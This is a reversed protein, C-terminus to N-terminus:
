SAWALKSRWSETDRGPAAAPGAAGRILRPEAVRRDAVPAAAAGLSSEGLTERAVGHMSVHIVRSGGSLFSELAVAAARMGALPDAIADGVPIPVGQSDLCHLGAAMAVDDGFGVRHPQAPGYATISVWTTPTRRCIDVRDIGWSELARPRSAEIVIDAADLLRSLLQAGSPSRPDLLVSDQGAHLVHYFRANGFRAGDLRNPTEVKVSRGGANLLISSALPGAWLASLDVVLPAAHGAPPQGAIVEDRVVAVAPPSLVAIPVEAIALSLIAASGLVDDTTMRALNTDLASWPATLDIERGLLAPLSDIDTRRALNIAVWGDLTRVARCSGGVSFPANRRAGAFAAREGLLRHWGSPVAGAPGGALERFTREWARVASAATGPPLLPPTKAYGTLALAGSAMWDRVPKGWRDSASM